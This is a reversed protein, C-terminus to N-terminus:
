DSVNSEPQTSSRSVEITEIVKLSFLKSIPRNTKGGAAHIGTARVVVDSSVIFKEIIALKREL